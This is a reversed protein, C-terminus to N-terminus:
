PRAGASPGAVMCADCRRLSGSEWGARGNDNWHPTNGAGIASPFGAAEKTGSGTCPSIGARDAGSKAPFSTKSTSPSIAAFTTVCRKGRMEAFWDEYSARRAEYLGKECVPFGFRCFELPRGEMIRAFVFGRVQIVILKTEKEGRFHQVNFCKYLDEVLPRAHFVNEIRMIAVTVDHRATEAALDEIRCDGICGDDLIALPGTQRQRERESMVSYAEYADIDPFLIRAINLAFTTKGSGERGFVLM